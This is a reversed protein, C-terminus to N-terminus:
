QEQRPPPLYANHFPQGVSDFQPGAVTAGSILRHELKVAVMRMKTVQTVGEHVGGSRSYGCTNANLRALSHM